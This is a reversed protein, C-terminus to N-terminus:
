HLILVLGTFVIMFTLTHLQPVGELLIVKNAFCRSICAVLDHQHGSVVNLSKEEEPEDERAYLPANHGTRGDWKGHYDYAMIHLFDLEEALDDIDYATEITSKGAALAATLM